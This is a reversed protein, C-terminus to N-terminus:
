CNSCISFIHQVTNHTLLSLSEKANSHFPISHSCMVPGYASRPQLLWTYLFDQKIENWLKNNKSFLSYGLPDISYFRFSGVAGQYQKPMIWFIFIQCWDYNVHCVSSFSWKAVKIADGTVSVDAHFNASVFPFYLFTAHLQSSMNWQPQMFYPFFLKCGKTCTTKSSASRLHEILGWHVRERGWSFM